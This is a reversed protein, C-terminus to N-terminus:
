KLCYPSKLYEGFSMESDLELYDQYRMQSKTPKKFKATVEKHFYERFETIGKETNCFYIHDYQKWSKVYGNKELEVLLHYPEGGESSAYYNRYFENPLEKDKYMKSHIAHYLNIGLSHAILKWHKYELKM